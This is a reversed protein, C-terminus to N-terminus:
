EFLGILKSQSLLTFYINEGNDFDASDGFIALPELISLDGYLDNLSPGEILEKECSTFLIPLFLFLFKLNKM